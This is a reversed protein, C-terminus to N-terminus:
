DRSYIGREVVGLVGELRRRLVGLERRREERVGEVIRLEGELERIRREQEAESSDIGPLVSILYEIQQEKIVLDRALERQRAAFTAPSDPAPLGEGDPSQQQQDAHQGGTQPNATDPPPPSAQSQSQAAQPASAPVPPTSANKPIKALLPAASPTTSTPPPTAPINDHYTTLYCLTAYFQTALQDLCTQLQTLIDAM